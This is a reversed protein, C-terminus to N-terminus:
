APAAPTLELLHNEVHLVHASAFEAHSLAGFAFHPQLAGTHAAFADLAALLRTLAVDPATAALAPAGPIAETLPHRMPGSFSFVEFAARGATRQFRAPKLQPYGTLSYEVSQALHEFVQAPTWATGSVLPQGQLAALRARLQPLPTIPGDRRLAMATVAGGALVTASALLFHRRNM